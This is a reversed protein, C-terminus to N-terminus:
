PQLRSLKIPHIYLLESPMADLLSELSFHHTALLTECEAADWIERGHRAIDAETHVRQCSLALATPIAVEVFMGMAAFVGCLACFSTMAAAPVAVLDSYAALLPLRPLGCRHHHMVYLLNDLFVPKRDHRWSQWLRPWLERAHLDPAAVRAARLQEEAARRDPLWAEFEVFRNKKLARLASLAHTWDRKTKGLPLLEKIYGTNADLGLASTITSENLDGRLILDDGVFLYHDYGGATITRGAEAIGGQFQHSSQFTPSVDARPGCYFPMLYHVGAFRNAYLADLRPLNAEFAHNFIIILGIRMRPPVSQKFHQGQRM